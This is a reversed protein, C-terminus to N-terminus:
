LSVFFFSDDKHNLLCNQVRLLCKQVFATLIGNFLRLLGRVM